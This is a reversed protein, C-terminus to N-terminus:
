KDKKELSYKSTIIKNLETVLYHPLNSSFVDNSISDLYVFYVSYPISLTISVEYTFDNNNCILNIHRENEDNYSASVLVYDEGLLKILYDRLLNDIKDFYINNFNYDVM